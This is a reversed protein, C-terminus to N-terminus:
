YEESIPELVPTWQRCNGSRYGAFGAGGQAGLLKVEDLDGEGEEEEMEVPVAPLVKASRQMKPSRKHDGGCFAAYACEIARKEKESVKCHVRNLPVLLYLKGALLEDDARMAIVRGTRRIDTALSIACGPEELMLEAAKVPVSVRRINGKSDMLKATTSSITTSNTEPKPRSVVCCSTYNGM